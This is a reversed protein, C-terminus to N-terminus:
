TKKIVSALNSTDFNWKFFILMSLSIIIKKKKKDFIELYKFRLTKFLMCKENKKSERFKINHM